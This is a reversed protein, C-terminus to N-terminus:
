STELVCLRATSRQLTGTATRVDAVRVRGDRGPHVAVVRGRRWQNRPANEDWVVVLDGVKLEPRERHWKARRNISPLYEKIWRKWFHNALWQSYRCQKRLKDADSFLTAVGPAGYTERIAGPNLGLFDNPTLSREDNPDDSVHTLPRSNLSYEAKAFLTQLVEERPSREKLTNNLARKVSGVLREWCGGMHPSGPPIFKWEIKENATQRLIEDKDLSAVAKRLEESAGRFNTGNDSFIRTPKGRRSMMRRLAMIMSSTDLSSAIELHVARVTLCTFLVGYRKETRRRITVQFPGFYDVGTNTFAAVNDQLRPPPLPAMRPVAPKARRHKCELCDNWSRRAAM